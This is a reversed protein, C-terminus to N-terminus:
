GGNGGGSGLRTVQLNNLLNVNQLNIKSLCGSVLSLSFPFLQTSNLRGEKGKPQM